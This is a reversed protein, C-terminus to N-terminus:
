SSRGTHLLPPNDSKLKLLIYPTRQNCLVPPCSLHIIDCDGGGGSFARYENSFFDLTNESYYHHLFFVGGMRDTHLHSAVPADALLKGSDIYTTCVALIIKLMGLPWEFLPIETSAQLM